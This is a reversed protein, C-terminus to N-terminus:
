PQCCIHKWCGPRFRGFRGRCGPPCSCLRSSHSADFTRSFSVLLSQGDIADSRHSPHIDCRSHPARPPHNARRRARQPPHGGQGCPRPGLLGGVANTRMLSGIRSTGGPPTPGPFRDSAGASSSRDARRKAALLQAREAHEIRLRGHTRTRKSIRAALGSPMMPPDIGTEAAVAVTAQLSCGSTRRTSESPILPPCSLSQVQSGEWTM